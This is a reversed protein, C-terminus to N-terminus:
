SLLWILVKLGGESIIPVAYIAATIFTTRRVLHNNFRHVYATSTQEIRGRRKLYSLVLKERLSIKRKSDKNPTDIKNYTNAISIPRIPSYYECETKYQLKDWEAKRTRMPRKVSLKFKPHKKVQGKFDGDQIVRNAHFRM